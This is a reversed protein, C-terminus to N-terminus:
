IGWCVHGMCYAVTFLLLVVWDSTDPLADRFLCFALLAIGIGISPCSNVLRLLTRSTTCHEGLHPQTHCYISWSAGALFLVLLLVRAAIYNV